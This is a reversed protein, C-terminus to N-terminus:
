EQEQRPLWPSYKDATGADLAAQPQTFKPNNLNRLLIGVRTCYDEKMDYLFGPWCWFGIIDGYKKTMDNILDKSNGVNQDFSETSYIGGNGAFIWTLDAIFTRLLTMWSGWAWETAVAIDDYCYRCLTVNSNNNTFAQAGSGSQATTLLSQLLPTNTV